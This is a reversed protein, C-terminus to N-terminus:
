TLRLVAIGPLRLVRLRLAAALADLAGDPDDAPLAATVRLRRPGEGALVVWGGRYRGLDEAVEALSAARYTLRGARWGALEEADAARPTGAAAGGGVRPTLEVATGAALVVAAGANGEARLEAPVGSASVLVALRGGLGVRKAALFGTAGAKVQLRGLGPLVFEYQRGGSADPAVAVVAQGALLELRRPGGPAASPQEAVSSAADLWLRSGDALVTEARAGAATRWTGPPDAGGLMLGAAGALVAGTAVTAALAGRRSLLVGSPAAPGYGGAARSPLAGLRNWAAAVEEYAQRHVPDAALWAEFAAYEPASTGLARLRLFWAAAAEGVPDEEDPAGAM